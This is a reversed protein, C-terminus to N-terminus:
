GLRLYVIPSEEEPEFGVLLVAPAKELDAFSLHSPTTGAVSSAIFDAEEASVPRTRADVDNTGLAVRAFKAYAYADEETLRGGPLVGVGGRDVAERLGTAARALADPWSAEVLNGHDDRVLPTLLRDAQDVYHFAFRGKDCNWEENVQPDNGALRRTVK